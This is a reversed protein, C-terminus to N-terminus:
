EKKNSMTLFFHERIWEMSVFFIVTHPGIRVYHPWVGKYFARWGEIRWMRRACDVVGKYQSQNASLSHSASSQQYLRTCIVDAPNQAIAVLVGSILAATLQCARDSLKTTSALLRTKIIDYSALQVSSGIMTRMSAAQAGRYFRRIGGARFLSRITTSAHAYAPNVLAELGPLRSAATSSQHHYSQLFTKVLNLPSALLASTAGAAGAAVFKGVVANGHEKPYFYDHVFTNLQAYILMRTGNMATQYAYAWPLARQVAHLRTAFRKHGRLLDSFRVRHDNSLVLQQRVKLVEFPNTFTVAICAGFSGVVFTDM